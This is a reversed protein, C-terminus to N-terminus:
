KDLFYKRLLKPFYHGIAWGGIIATIISLHGFTETPFLYSQIYGWTGAIIIIIFLEITRNM